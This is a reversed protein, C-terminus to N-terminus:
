GEEAVIRKLVTVMGQSKGTELQVRTKSPRYSFRIMLSEARVKVVDLPYFM